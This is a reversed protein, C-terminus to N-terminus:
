VKLRARGRATSAKKLRLYQTRPELEIDNNALEKKFEKDVYNYLKEYLNDMIFTLSAPYNLDWGEKKFHTKIEQVEQKILENIVQSVM